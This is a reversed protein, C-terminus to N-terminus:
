VPLPESAKIHLVSSVKFVLLFGWFLCTGLSGGTQSDAIPSGPIFVANAPHM